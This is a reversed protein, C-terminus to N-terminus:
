DAKSRISHEGEGKEPQALRTTRGPKSVVQLTEFAIMLALDPARLTPLWRAAKGAKGVVERRVARTLKWVM